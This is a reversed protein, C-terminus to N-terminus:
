GIRIGDGGRRVAVGFLAHMAGAFGDPDTNRFAGVVRLGAAGAAVEIKRDNYHNLERAATALTQGDLILLGDRWGMRRRIEDQGVGAARLAEGSAALRLETGATFRRTAAPAARAWAEIEGAIVTLGAGDDRFRLIMEAPTAVRARLAGVDLRLARTADAAVSLWVEGTEVSLSRTETTLLARIQSRSDIVAVSGDDLVLRRTEGSGTEIRTVPERRAFVALGAAVSAAVAGGVLVARRDPRAPRSPALPRAQGAAHLVAQARAFAGRHRRDAELWAALRRNEAPSLAGGDTRVAWDAAEADIEGQHHLTPM